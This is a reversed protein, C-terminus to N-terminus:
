LGISIADGEILDMIEQERVQLGRADDWDPDIGIWVEYNLDDLYLERLIEM